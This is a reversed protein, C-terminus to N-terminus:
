YQRQIVDYRKGNRRIEFRRDEGLKNIITQEGSIEPDSLSANNTVIARYLKATYILQEQVYPTKTNVEIEIFIDDINKGPISPTNAIVKISRPKSLEKGFRISPIELIGTRNAIITLIWQQLHSVKGNNIQTSSRRNRNLITFSKNLLSFNPDVAINENSEFILQFSEDITVPSRDVSITIDATGIPSFFLLILTVITRINM